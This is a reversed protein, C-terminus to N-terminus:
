NRVRKITIKAAPNRWDYSAADLDGIGHIGGHIHVYGEGDEVSPGTGGCVPGPINACAEDNPESGADYVPSFHTVSHNFKPAQVSNLAFFGDNTPILMAAVSINVHRHRPADVTVTVTQGPALLGGSSAADFLQGASELKLRLPESDGGEALAALADGAPQGLEFLGANPKHSAVLIPTFSQARTLNTISVEYEAALAATSFLSSAVIAVGLKKM